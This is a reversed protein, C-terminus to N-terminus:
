ASSPDLFLEQSEPGVLLHGHLQDLLADALLSPVAPALKIVIGDDHNEESVLLGGGGRDMHYRNCACVLEFIKLYVDRYSARFQSIDLYLSSM